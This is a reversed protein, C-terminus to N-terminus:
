VSGTVGMDPLFIVISMCERDGGHRSTFIVFGMCERDGGHRFVFIVISM